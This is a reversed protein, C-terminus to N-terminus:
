LRSNSKIKGPRPKAWGETEPETKVQVREKGQQGLIRKTKGGRRDQDEIQSLKSRDQNQSPRAKPPRSFLKATPILNNQHCANNPKRWVYRTWLISKWFGKPKGLHDKALNLHATQGKKSMLPKKRAVRGHIGHRNLTRRITSAHVIVQSAALSTQLDGSTINPNANVQNIIKRTARPTIKSPRGSRPLTATMNFERWKYIIQRVTSQHLDFKKSIKTYGEGSQHARVVETRIDESIEKGRPMTNKKKNVEIVLQKAQETKVATPM